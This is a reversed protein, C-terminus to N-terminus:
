IDFWLPLDPVSGGKATPALVAKIAEPEGQAVFSPPCRM